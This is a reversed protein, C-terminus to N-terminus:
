VNANGQSVVYILSHYNVIDIVTTTLHGKTLNESIKSLIKMLLKTNQKEEKKKKDKGFGEKDKYTM